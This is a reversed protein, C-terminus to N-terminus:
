LSANCTSVGLLMNRSHDIKMKSLDADPNNAKLKDKCLEAMEAANPIFQYKTASVLTPGSPKSSTSAVVRDAVSATTIAVAPTFACGQLAVSSILITAFLIKNM